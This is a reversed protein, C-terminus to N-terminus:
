VRMYIAHRTGDAITVTTHFRFGHRTVFKRWKTWDGGHPATTMAYVPCGQAAIVDSVDSNFARAVSPTWRNVQCHLFLKGCDEELSITYGHRCVVVTGAM